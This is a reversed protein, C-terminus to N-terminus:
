SFDSVIILKKLKMKDFDIIKPLFRNFLLLALNHLHLIQYRNDILFYHIIIMEQSYNM